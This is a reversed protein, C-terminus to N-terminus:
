AESQPLMLTCVQQRDQFSLDSATDMIHLADDLLRAAPSADYRSSCM